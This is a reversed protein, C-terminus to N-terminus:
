QVREYTKEFADASIPFYAGIADRVLWDGRGCRMRGEPTSVLLSHADGDHVVNRHGGTFDAVDRFNEGTWHIADIESPRVRYRTM